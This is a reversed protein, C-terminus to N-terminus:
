EGDVVESDVVPEPLAAPAPALPRRPRDLRRLEEDRKIRFAMAENVAGEGRSKRTLQMQDATHGLQEDLHRMPELGPHAKVRIGLERGDKDILQEEVIVGRKRVDEVIQRRIMEKQAMAVIGLPQLSDHNGDEIAGALADIVAAAGPAKRELAARTGEYGCVAKAYKGHKWAAVRSAARSKATSPVPIGPVRGGKGKKKPVASTSSSRM